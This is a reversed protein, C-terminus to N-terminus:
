DVVTNARNGKNDVKGDSTTTEQEVTRPPPPPRKRLFRDVLGWLILLPPLYLAAGIALTANGPGTLMAGLQQRFPDDNILYTWTSSPGKFGLRELDLEGGGDAIRDFAARVADDIEGELRRFAAATEVKFHTLPDEGGLGVLHSGERLDAVFSLHDSWARDLCALTVAVETRRVADDGHRAVLEDYPRGRRQWLDPRREGRLLAQRRRHLLRRQEEIPQAYRWLTKRIERNQGQVIRQARAIERRVVPNDIPEARPPPRFRPPILREVGYRVLLDDELSIFFRSDGPDGQRGARGRLQLDVRRSEHRNTGIVYLGGLAVVRRHEEPDDGGLRVDTGRGAMNTSITVAGLRGARAVIEAERADNKANLVQCPVGAGALRAALRESEAITLTGALIPRGSAHVRAIERVVAREKARRHTFVVDPHDRRIMPRHTPIVVVRLGYFDMLEEAADQATGTMGGLRPYGALFHQLTISGLIRGDSGREVGEKAELAAQLGDPWHRDEVVRGTHEDVVELRGDRVVYDADRHLLVRAHLACQLETLLLYNEEALLNGCALAAEVRDFGAETLAVNRGHEDVEFDVGAALEAVLAALRRASSDRREVSGAIVLPVRAEDILLSDAEDALAFHFPRHVLDRVRTALLDRLFDFGAEKATVYTVDARYARRREAASMGEEVFGVSLGLLRYIPGMWGADRRALYDNFTLVHVGKGSLANLYAPMVAALTKGEGTLMEVVAGRDLALAAVVQEDFPRLGLCRRAAERVLAYGRCRLNQRPEGARARARLEQSAALLERDALPALEAELAGVAALPRDYARLDLEVPSGKLRALRQRWTIANRVM